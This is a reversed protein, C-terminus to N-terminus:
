PRILRETFLYWTYKAGEHSSQRPDEIEQFRLARYLVATGKVLAMREKVVPTM